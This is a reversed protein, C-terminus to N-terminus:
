VDHRILLVVVLDRATHHVDHRLLQELAGKCLPVAIPAAHPAERVRPRRGAERQTGNRLLLLRIRIGIPLVVASLDALFVPLDKVTHDLGKGVVGVDLAAALLQHTVKLAHPVPAVAENEGVWRNVGHVMGKPAGIHAARAHVAKELAVRAARGRASFAEQAGTSSPPRARAIVAPQREDVTGVYLYSLEDGPPPRLQMTCSARIPLGFRRVARSRLPAMRTGVAITARDVFFRAECAGYARRGTRIQSPWASNRLPCVGAVAARGVGSPQTVLRHIASTAAVGHCLRCPDGGAM